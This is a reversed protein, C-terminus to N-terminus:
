YWGTTKNIYLKTNKSQSGIMGCLICEISICAHGEDYQLRQSNLEKKMTSTTINTLQSSINNHFQCQSYNPISSKFLIDLKRSYYKLALM